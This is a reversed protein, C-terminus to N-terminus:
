IKKMNLRLYNLSDVVEEKNKVEITLVGKYNTTKLKKFLLEFDITGQGLAQHNDFSGDNDSLHLHAISDYNLMEEASFGMTHAHGVDLTMSVELDNVLNNLDNLDKFLYGEMQPMNEVCLEIGRDQAYSACDKLARYNNELIKERFVRALYPVQGPHVVVVDAGINYAWQLSNKIQNLSSKQISHNISAINIDSLPSHVVIKLPSSNIIDPSLHHYPYEHIIECYGVKLNELYLLIEELSSPYLALTSIGIKM